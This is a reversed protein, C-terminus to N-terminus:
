RGPTAPSVERVELFLEQSVAQGFNGVYPDFYGFVIPGVPVTGPRVPVIWWTFTRVGGVVGERVEVVAGDVGPTVEAGPVPGLEPPPVARVHGAGLIRVVLLASEGVALRSPTLSAELRYRGVAGRFGSLPPPSPLPLVTVPLPPAAVSDWVRRGVGDTGRPLLLWGSPLRTEGAEWPFFARRFTYTQEVSGGAAAPSALPAEPVDVAWFGPPSPPVYEPLPSGGGLFGPRFAATAVLTVQQGVFVRSPTVGVRLVAEGGPSGGQSGYAHLEPVMEAWWPDGRATEAWGGTPYGGWGGGGPVGPFWGPPAGQAVGGGGLSGPPAILWGGHPGQPPLPMPVVGYGGGGWGGGGPYGWVGPVWGLPAGPVAAPTGGRAGEVMEGTAPPQGQPRPVSGERGGTGGGPEPARRNEALRGWLAPLPSVSLVPGPVEFTRGALLVRVPPLRLEGPEQPFLELERELVWRSGAGTGVGRSSRDRVEGLEVGPPPLWEVAEPLGWSSVVRVTMVVRGGVRAVQPRVGVAIEPATQLGLLVAVSVVWLGKWTRM